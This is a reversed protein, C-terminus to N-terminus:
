SPVFIQRASAHLDRQELADYFSGQWANLRIQGVATACIIIVIGSTLLIVPRRESSAGRSRLLSSLQALVNKRATDDQHDTSALSLQAEDPENM